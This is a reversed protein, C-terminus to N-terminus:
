NKPIRPMSQTGDSQLGVSFNNQPVLQYFLSNKVSSQFNLDGLLVPFIEKMSQIGSLLRKLPYKRKGNSVSFPRGEGVPQTHPITYVNGFYIKIQNALSLPHIRGTLSTAPQPGVITSCIFILFSFRIFPHVPVPVPVPFSILSYVFSVHPFWNALKYNRIRTLRSSINNHSSSGSGSPENNNNDNHNRINSSCGPVEQELGGLSTSSMTWSKCSM